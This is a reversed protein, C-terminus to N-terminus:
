GRHTLISWILRLVTAFCDFTAGDDSLGGFLGGSTAKQQAPPHEPAAAAPEPEIEVVDLSSTIVIEVSDRFM